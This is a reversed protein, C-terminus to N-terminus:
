KYSFYGFGTDQEQVDSCKCVLCTLIGTFAELARVPRCVNVPVSEVLENTPFLLVNASFRM